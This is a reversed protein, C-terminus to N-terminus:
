NGAFFFFLGLRFNLIACWQSKPKHDARGQRTENRFASDLQDKQDNRVLDQM